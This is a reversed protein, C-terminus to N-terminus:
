VVCIGFSKGKGLLSVLTEKNLLFNLVTIRTERNGPMERSGEM